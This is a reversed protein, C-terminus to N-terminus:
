LGADATKQAESQLKILDPDLKLRALNKGPGTPHGYIKRGRSHSGQPASDSSHHTGGGREERSERPM